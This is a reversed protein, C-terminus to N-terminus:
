YYQFFSLDLNNNIEWNETEVDIVNLYNESM